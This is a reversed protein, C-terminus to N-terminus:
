DDSKTISLANVAGITASPIVCTCYPLLAERLIKVKEKERNLKGAEFALEIKLDEIKDQLKEITQDQEEKIIYLRNIKARLSAIEDEDKKFIFDFM